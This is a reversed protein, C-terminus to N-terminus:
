PACMGILWLCFWLLGFSFRCHLPQPGIRLSRGYTTYVEKTQSWGSACWSLCRDVSRDNYFHSFAFGIHISTFLGYTLSNKPMLVLNNICLCLLLIFSLGGVTILLCFKYSVGDFWHGFMSAVNCPSGLNSAVQIVSKIACFIISSSINLLRKM